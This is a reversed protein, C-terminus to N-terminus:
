STSAEQPKPTSGRLDRIGSQLELKPPPMDDSEQEERHFKATLNDWDIILRGGTTEHQKEWNMLLDLCAHDIYSLRELHVHLETSPRVNELVAALQPLRIFTATGRLHLITRNRGFDDEVRLDLHSFTYLLKVASLAIGVLVGTLLNSVVIMLVTAAYIAVEGRGFQALERIRKIDVLKYGTFVLIAALCATPVMRLVFPAAAVFIVIWIGHLIASLRTRGGSEVNAASRVIV